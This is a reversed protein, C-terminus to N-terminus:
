FRGDDDLRHMQWILHAIFASWFSLADKTWGLAITASMMLIGSIATFCRLWILSNDLYGSHVKIGILADDDKDQHTFLTYFLTWAIGSLYLLIAPWGLGDGHAVYGLLAGWNFAIGLFVQAVLYFTECIPLDYRTYACCYLCSRLLILLFYICAALTIQVFM